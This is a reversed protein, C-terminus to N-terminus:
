LGRAKRHGRVIAPISNSKLGFEEAIEDYGVGCSALIAICEDRASKADGMAKGLRKVDMGFKRAMQRVAQRTVGRAAAVQSMTMGEDLMRRVEHVRSTPSRPNRDKSGKPRGPRKREAVHVPGYEDLPDSM